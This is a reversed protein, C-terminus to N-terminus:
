NSGQNSSLQRDKSPSGQSRGQGLIGATTLRQIVGNCEVNTSTRVTLEFMKDVEEKPHKYLLYEYITM